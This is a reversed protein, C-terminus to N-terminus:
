RKGYKVKYVLSMSCQLEAAIDRPKKGDSLMTQILPRFHRQQRATVTLDPRVNPWNRGTLIASITPYAVGYIDALWQPTFREPNEHYLFKCNEVESDDLIRM